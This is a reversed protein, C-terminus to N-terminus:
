SGPGPPPGPLATVNRAAQILPGMGIVGHPAPAGDRLRRSREENRAYGLFPIGAEDAAQADMVSDGIMLCRDRTVGLEKVARDLCDPHPKMWRPDDTRRGFIRPGFLDKLGHAKLYSDVAEPANNTTIALLRGSRHMLEAFKAAGFTPEAKSAAEIEEEAMRRELLPFVGLLDASRLIRHPDRTESWRVAQAPLGLDVLLDCLTVAIDRAPHRAFLRCLPGDFDWLLCSARNLLVEPLHDGWTADGSQNYQSTV